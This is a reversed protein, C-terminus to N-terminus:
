LKVLRGTFEQGKVLMKYFYIGPPTNSINFQKVNKFNAIGLGQSNTIIISSATQLVGSQLCNFVGTSPNPYLVAAQEKEPLSAGSTCSQKARLYDAEDGLRRTISCYSNNTLTVVADPSISGPLEVVSQNSFKLLEGRDTVEWQLEKENTVATLQTICKGRSSIVSIKFDPDTCTKPGAYWLVNSMNVFNLLYQGMKTAQWFTGAQESVNFYFLSSDKPTVSHLPLYNGDNDKIDYSKKITEASAYKGSSFSNPVSLYVKRLGAPVFFYGPLSKADATYSETKNGLFVGKKYFYNGRTTISIDLASKYKTSVTLVYQGAAPLKVELVGAKGNQDISFDTIVELTKDDAEVLFNIYGKGPMDFRPNYEIVFSGAKPAILNFSTKNYYNIGNTYTINAKIKDLPALKAKAFQAQIYGAEESKYQGINNGYRALDESFNNDIEEATILPLTGNQYATGNVTNYQTYFDDTLPYRSVINTILFYSNVLQLKNTRALYICTEADKEKKPKKVQDDAALDFYLVMYHLYAKFERVRDKVIQAETNTQQVVKNLLQLYLEM